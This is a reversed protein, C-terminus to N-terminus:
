APVTATPQTAAPGAAPQDVDVVTEELPVRDVTVKLRVDRGATERLAETITHAYRNELWEKAFASPAALEMTDDHLRVPRTSDVWARAGPMISRFLTTYPFLTSRRQRRIAYSFLIKRCPRATKS